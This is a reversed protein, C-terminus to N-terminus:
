QGSYDEIYAAAKLEDLYANAFSQLRQNQLRLKIDERSVEEPLDRTRSCLMLFVLNQGSASTLNTSVEGEDLKALELAYNTPIQGIPLSERQLQEPTADRVIGYLDDCTDAKARIKAAEGLATESRGGPLFLTAYDVTVDKPQPADIEEIARMQFIAVGNKVPIPDSVHGPALPLIQAAVAPPLNSLDMWQLRGSRGRSPAVSYQRAASAFAPLTTIESLESARANSVQLQAPTQAPLIIESLLVRVGQGPRTLALQRDVEDDSVQVRGAWRARVVGRWAIGGSVFDRFTEPAIGAQAIIKNFTEIDLNFRGTFEEMGALIEEATPKVDANEAAQRQLAENTLQDMALERLNGPAKLITLFAMRQSLEYATIVRDNIKKVPAFLDQAVAPAAGFSTVVLLGAVLSAALRQTWRPKPLTSARSNNKRKVM